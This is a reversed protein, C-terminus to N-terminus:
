ARTYNCLFNMKILPLEPPPPSAPPLPLPLLAWVQPFVRSVRCSNVHLAVLQIGEERRGGGEERRGRRGAKM